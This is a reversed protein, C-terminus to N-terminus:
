PTIAHPPPVIADEPLGRRPSSLLAPPFFLWLSYVCYGHTCKVHHRSPWRTGLLDPDLLTLCGGGVGPVPRQPECGETITPM